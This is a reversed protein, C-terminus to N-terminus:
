YARETLRYSESKKDRGSKDHGRLDPKDSSYIRDNNKGSNTKLSNFAYDTSQNHMVSMNQEMGCGCGALIRKGGAIGFYLENGMLQIQKQNSGTDEIPNLQQRSDQETVDSLLRNKQLEEEFNRIEEVTIKTGNFNVSILKGGVPCNASHERWDQSNTIDNVSNKIRSLTIDRDSVLAEIGLDTSTKFKM